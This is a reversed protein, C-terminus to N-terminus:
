GEDWKGQVVEGCDRRGRRRRWHGVAEIEGGHGDLDAEGFIEKRTQKADNEGGDGDLDARRRKGGEM